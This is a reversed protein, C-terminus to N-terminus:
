STITGYRRGSAKRELMKIDSLVETVINRETWDEAVELADQWKEQLLDLEYQFDNM